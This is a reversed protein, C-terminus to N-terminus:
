LMGSLTEGGSTPTGAVRRRAAASGGAVASLFSLAFVGDDGRRSQTRFARSLVQVQLQASMSGNGLSRM